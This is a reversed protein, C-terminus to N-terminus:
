KLNVGPLQSRWTAFILSPAPTFRLEQSGSDEIKKVANHASDEIKKVANHASDEIKVANHASDKLRRRSVLLPLEYKFHVTTKVKLATATDV